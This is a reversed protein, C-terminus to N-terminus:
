FTQNTLKEGSAVDRTIISNAISAGKGIRVKEWCISDRLTANREVVTGSGIIVWGTLKTTPDIVSDKGVLIRQRGLMEKNAQVYSEVTGIDRWYHGKSIYSSVIGRDAIISRYTDIINHFVGPPIYNLVTKSLIHIGTFALLGPRPRDGFAQIHGDSNVRVQNFQPYSQLVLTALARNRRHAELAASLDIDTLIDVNIVIFPTQDWFDEVNKIGGGTGLIEKEVAIHIPIDFRARDRFHWVIQDYLHHANIVIEKVGHHKLYEIVRNVMAINAVPMLGKPRKHTLPELRTGYGAALIMAKM